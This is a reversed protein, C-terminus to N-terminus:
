NGFIRKKFEAQKKPDLLMEYMMKKLGFSIHFDDRRCLQMFDAFSRLTVEIKEGGDFNQEAVKRCNRAIYISEQYYIKSEGAFEHLLEFKEAECGTEQLLEAKAGELPTQYVEVRGGPLSLFLPKTPQEQSLIIIKDAMTAIVEVSPRRSLMEFTEIRGDYMKQPWQYVDFIEGVFVKKAGEPLRLQKM